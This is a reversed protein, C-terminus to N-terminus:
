EFWCSGVRSQAIVGSCQAAVSGVCFARQPLANATLLKANAKTAQVHDFREHNVEVADLQLKCNLQITSLVIIGFIM